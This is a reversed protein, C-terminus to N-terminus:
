RTVIKEWFYKEPSFFSDGIFFHSVFLSCLLLLLCVFLLVDEEERCFSSRVLM